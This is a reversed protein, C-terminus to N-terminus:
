ANTFLFFPEFEGFLAGGRHCHYLYEGKDGVRLSLFFANRRLYGKRCGDVSFREKGVASYKHEDAGRNLLTIKDYM